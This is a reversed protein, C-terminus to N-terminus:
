DDDQTMIRGAMEREYYDLSLRQLQAWIRVRLSLMIREATRGTVFTSAVQDLLDVLVVALFVGAAGFLVAESGRGVGSDVGTKVLYPGAVGALADLVVLALGLLLPRRFRRLLRVLGFERDHVSEAAVDIAAVDRVPPLAAVREILEPTPALNVKWGGGGGGGLGPGLSPAGIRECRAPRARLRNGRRRLSATPPLRRSHRSATGPRM